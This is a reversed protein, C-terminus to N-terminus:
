IGGDLLAAVTERHDAVERGATWVATEAIMELLRRDSADAPTAALIEDRIVKGPPTSSAAFLSFMPGIPKPPESVTPPQLTPVRLRSGADNKTDTAYM